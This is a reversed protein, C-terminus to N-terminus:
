LPAKIIGEKKFEEMEQDSYGLQRMVLDTHEGLTPGLSRTRAPSASFHVPYGPIKIPGLLPHEFDVVYHNALAQPDALVDQTRQIPGFMLGRGRLITLWESRTRTAFVKDFLEVLERRHEGIRTIDSFRPDELLATQGTADCLLPWYKQEPHHTGIIWQDDRCRFYNRLPSFSLRDSPTPEISLCSAL